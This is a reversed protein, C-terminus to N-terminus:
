NYLDSVTKNVPERDAELESPPATVPDIRKFLRFGILLAPIAAFYFGISYNGTANVIQAYIVPFSMM